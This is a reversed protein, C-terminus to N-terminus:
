RITIPAEAGAIPVTKLDASVGQIKQMRVIAQGPNADAAASFKVIAIAGEGLSQIGGALICMCVRGDKPDNRSSCSVSKGASEAASGVVVDKAEIRLGVPVVLEWQLAAVPRDANPTLLIRFINASGRTVAAGPIELTQAWSVGAFTLALILRIL